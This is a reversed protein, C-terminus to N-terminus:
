QLALLLSRVFAPVTTLVMDISFSPSPDNWKLTHSRSVQEQLQCAHTKYRRGRVRQIKRHGVGDENSRKEAVKSEKM